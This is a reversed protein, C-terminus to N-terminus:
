DASTPVSISVPDTAGFRRLINRTAQQAAPSTLVARGPAFGDLGRNWNMSGIDVVTSKSGTLYVTMDAYWLNGANDRYPSHAISLTGEPADTYLQDAEYGLLGTLHDGNKLGTDAFIWNSADTVVIDVIGQTEPDRSPYMEGIMINEPRDVPSIRFPVTTLNTSGPTESMPDLAADKYCIITRNPDGTFKSQTFRIQWYATDAGFFGLSVGKDRANEVHDRMQWSWYEDHGVSLFADHRLLLQGNAHTDVDTSYTVDYGERELFRVMNYEWSFLDGTGYNRAYPRNFSVEYARPQSYLSWGGWNNYAEYTTVSAQFLLDSPRSDDRVVFTVYSQKGSAGGTLKVLYIGSAWDTPDPSNPVHLVYPDTWQCEVLGTTQDIFPAPQRTGKRVVPPMMERSGAGGYWGLRYFEMTYTPEATNVFFSIDDGRNVSTLSAYGEIEGNIAPYSILWATTGPKQNEAKITWQASGNGVPSRYAIDKLVGSCGTNTLGIFVLLGLLTVREPLPRGKLM